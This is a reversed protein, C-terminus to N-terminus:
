TAPTFSLPGYTSLLRHARSISHKTTRHYNLTAASQTSPLKINLLPPALFDTRLLKAWIPIAQHFFRIGINQNKSGPCFGTASGSKLGHYSSRPSPRWNQVSPNTPNNSIMIITTNPTLCFNEPYAGFVPSTGIKGLAILIKYLIIISIIDHEGTPQFQYCAKVRRTRNIDMRTRQRLKTPRFNISVINM